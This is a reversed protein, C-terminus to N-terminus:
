RRSTAPWCSRSGSRRARRRAVRGRRPRARVEDVAGAAVMADVRADIRAYLAERDMSSGSWAPRTARRRRGCSTRAARPSSSASSSCSSRASSAAATARARDGRGGVARARALEAHLAEPGRGRARGGLARPGRRAAAPAADLDALAARLYLGTGGVVIPRRAPPWCGMSRPTRSSPTSAPASRRTSRCSRSSGTSSARASPRRRRRGTLMELGRYVQLADASVAVPREGRARLRRRARARGRDQRRGDARLARARAPDPLTPLAPVADAASYRSGAHAHADAAPQRCAGVRPDAAISAPVSARAPARRRARAVEDDDEAEPACRAAGSAVSSPTARPARARRARRSRRPRRARRRGRSRPRCRPRPRPRPARAAAAGLREVRPARRAGSPTSTVPRGSARRRSRPSGAGRGRSTGSRRAHEGLEGRARRAHRDEAAQRARAREVALRRQEEAVLDDRRAGDAHAKSPTSTRGHTEWPAAGIPGSSVTVAASPCTM